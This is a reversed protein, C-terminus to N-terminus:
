RKTFYNERVITPHEVKISEDYEVNEVVASLSKVQNWAHMLMTWM